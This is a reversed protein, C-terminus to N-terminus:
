RHTLFSKCVYYTTDIAWFCLNHKHLSEIFIFWPNHLIIHSKLYYFAKFVKTKLSSWYWVFHKEKTGHAYKVELYSSLIHTTCCHGREFCSAMQNNYISYVRENDLPLNNKTSLLDMPTITSSQKGHYVWRKRKPSREHMQCTVYQNPLTRISNM